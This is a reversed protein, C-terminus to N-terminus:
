WSHGSVPARGWSRCCTTEHNHRGGNVGNTIDGIAGNDTHVLPKTQERWATHLAQNAYTCRWVHQVRCGTAQAHAGSQPIAVINANHHEGIFGQHHTDVCPPVVLGPRRPHLAVEYVHTLMLGVPSTPSVDHGDHPPSWGMPSLM